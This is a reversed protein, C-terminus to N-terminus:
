RQPKRQRVLHEGRAVTPFKNHPYNLRNRMFREQSGTEVVVPRIERVRGDEASSQQNSLQEGQEGRRVAEPNDTPAAAGRFGYQM